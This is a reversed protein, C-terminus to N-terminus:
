EKVEEVCLESIGILAAGGSLMFGLLLVGLLGIDEPFFLVSGVIGWGFVLFGAAKLVGKCFIAKM